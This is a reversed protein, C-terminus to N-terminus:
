PRFRSVAQKLDRAAAGHREYRLKIYLQTILDIQRALDPRMLTARVAFDAPGEHPSRAIGRRALRACFKEYAARVPDHGHRPTHWLMWLAIGLLLAAIGTVMAVAMGQWSALATHFRSLFRSQREQGYGLVWQNWNNNLLDWSLRTRRLWEADLQLLAPPLEAGPLAAAIGSEIRDPSVAGTPDIRVWGQKELWVEAWAHADSQRVILYDGLPNMEGGQYGTVVRAPIGAARMLFVFTGAYHECFGRRTKFLFDDVAQQGLLPPNLTYVFAENRFMGLAQNVIAQPNKLTDRWRAALELAQPNARAPLRLARASEKAGPDLDLDLRYQTYSALSYRLRQQVPVQALIQLDGGASSGPPLAAPLDLAFLWRQNHPELTVTYNVAKGLPVLQAPTGDLPQRTSWTRGDYDWLVPGRWYRLNKHPPPGDFKVRFAIAESRILQSITGPSMSDSLGTMGAHADKPLGWLPGVRPFFVFLVLMLPVAQALLTGALRLRPRVSLGNNVDNYGIMTATTVLVVLLLYLATPIAQSYLFSTIVLFYSLFIVVMTDRLTKIEMLKLVSMVVLLAVGADRGFLTHYHSFIGASAAAALLFLLWKKPLRENSRTIALRWLGLALCLPGVWLPMHELHPAIALALSALLWALKSM